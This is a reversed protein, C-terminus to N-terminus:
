VENDSERLVQKAKELNMTYIGRFGEHVSDFSIQRGSPAWVPHLDCRIEVTPHPMTKFRGLLGGRKTLLDYLYLERCGDAKPYSDYLVWERDPSYSVHGDTKFFEVDLARGEHTLDKLEYLQNGLNGLEKGDSHISLINEDVWYYHSAYGYDSLLFLDRGDFSATLTATKWNKSDFNRLLFVFRSGSTNFNIHNVCVKQDLKGFYSKTFDWLYQLSLILRSKGMKLDTLWIGDKEPHNVDHWVDRQGAYGYGPRFDYMRDFNVSLAYEGNPSVTAAPRDLFHIEGTALNKLVAGYGCSGERRVNWLVTDAQASVWQAFCGQQFCWAFTEGIQTRQGTHLDITFVKACDDKEPLRDMFPVHLALHRKEGSDFAPIDYYGFFWHEGCPTIRKAEAPLIRM